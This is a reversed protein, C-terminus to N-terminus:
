FVGSVAATDLAGFDVSLGAPGRVSRNFRSEPRTKTESETRTEERLAGGVREPHADSPPLATRQTVDGDEDSHNLGVSDGGLCM